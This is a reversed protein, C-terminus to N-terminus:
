RSRSKLCVYWALQKKVIGPTGVESVTDTTPDAFPDDEADVLLGTKSHPDDMVRTDYRWAPVDPTRSSSAATTNTVGARRHAEEDSSYDSYDSLSGPQDYRDEEVQANPRIPPPLASFLSSIHLWHTLLCGHRLFLLFVYTSSAGLEGFSLDQLDPHLSASNQRAAREVQARQQQQLKYLEADDSEQSINM